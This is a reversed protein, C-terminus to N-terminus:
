FILACFARSFPPCLISLSAAMRHCCANRVRQESLNTHAVVLAVEDELDRLKRKHSLPTHNLCYKLNHIKEELHCIHGYTIYIQPM